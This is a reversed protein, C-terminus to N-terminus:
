QEIKLQFKAILDELRIPVELVEDVERLHKGQEIEKIDLQLLDFDAINREM